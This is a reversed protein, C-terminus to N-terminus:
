SPERARKDDKREKGPEADLAVLPGVHTTHRHVGHLVGETTTVVLVDPVGRRGVAKRRGTLLDTEDGGAAGAAQPADARLLFLRRRRVQHSPLDIRNKFASRAGSVPSRKWGFTLVVNKTSKSNRIERVGQTNDERICHLLNSQLRQYGIPGRPHGLTTQSQEARQSNRTNEKAACVHSFPLLVTSPKNRLLQQPNRTNDSVNTDNKLQNNEQRSLKREQKKQPIM